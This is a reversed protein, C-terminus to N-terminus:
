TMTSNSQKSMHKNRIQQSLFVLLQTFISLIINCSYEHKHSFMLVHVVVIILWSSSEVSDDSSTYSCYITM